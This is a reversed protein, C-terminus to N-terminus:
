PANAAFWREVAQEGLRRAQDFGFLGAQHHVALPMAYLEFAYQTTDGPRLHGEDIALRIARELIERWRRENARVLDQLPGPRDDYETVSGLLVCGGENSRVWEFWDHMIARLRPLGRPKALAPLFVAEGFRLAASEIVARQLDERSGFHAFVGSKSMGVAQALPGISLGEVGSCRAIEYAREIIAERTAAGKATPPLITM